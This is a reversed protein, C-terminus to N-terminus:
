RAIRLIWCSIPVGKKIKFKKIKKFAKLFVEQVLDKTTEIDSTKWYLFRFVIPGYKKYIKEFALVDGKKAKKILKEEEIM